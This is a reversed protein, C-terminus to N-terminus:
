PRSGGAISEGPAHAGDRPARAADGRRPPEAAAGREGGRVGSSARRNRLLWLSLLVVSVSIATYIAPWPDAATSISGAYAVIFAFPVVGVGYGLAFRWPHMRAVGAMTCGLEPLIPLAQCVFLTLLDNRAFAAEIEALRREDGYLRLLLPRGFRRGLTYGTTGLLMLGIASAGGGLVPGLLFGALLITTMTPVAVFLDLVLLGIVIAVLWAPHVERAQGLWTRVSEETVLGTGQLIFFTSAFALALAVSVKLLERM